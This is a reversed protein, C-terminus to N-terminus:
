KKKPKWLTIKNTPRKHCVDREENGAGVIHHNNPLRPIFEYPIMDSHAMETPFTSWQQRVHMWYVSQILQDGGKFTQGLKHYVSLLEILTSYSDGTTTTYSQVLARADYLLFASNFWGAHDISTGVLYTQLLEKQEEPACPLVENKMKFKRWRWPDLAALIRGKAEPLSFIQPMDPSHYTHCADAFLVKDYQSAIKPHFALPKFYYSRHHRKRVGKKCEALPPPDLLHKHDPHTSVLDQLLKSAEYVISSKNLPNYLQNMAVQVDKATRNSGFEDFVIIVDGNHGGDKRVSQASDLVADVYKENCVFVIATKNSPLSRNSNEM